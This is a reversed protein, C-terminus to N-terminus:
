LRSFKKSQMGRVVHGEGNSLPCCFKMSMIHEKGLRSKQLRMEHEIVKRVPRTRQVEAPLIRALEHSYARVSM